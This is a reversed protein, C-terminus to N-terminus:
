YMVSMTIADSPLGYTDAAADSNAASDLQGYLTWQIATNKGTSTGVSLATAITTPWVTTFDSQYVQYYLKHASSTKGSMSRDNGSYSSLYVKV